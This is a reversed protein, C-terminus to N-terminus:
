WDQSTWEGSAAGSVRRPPPKLVGWAGLGSKAATVFNHHSLSMCWLSVDSLVGYVEVGQQSRLCTAFTVVWIWSLYGCGNLLHHDPRTLYFPVLTYCM